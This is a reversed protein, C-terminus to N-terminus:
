KSKRFPSRIQWSQRQPKTPLPSHGYLYSHHEVTMIQLPIRLIPSKPIRRMVNRRGPLSSTWKRMCIESSRIIGKERNHIHQTWLIFAQRILKTQEAPNRFPQIKHLPMPTLCDSVLNYCSGNHNSAKPIIPHTAPSCFM